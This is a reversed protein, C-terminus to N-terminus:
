RRSRTRGASRPPVYVNVDWTWRNDTSPGTTTDDQVLDTWFLTVAPMALAELDPEYDLATRRRRHPRRRRRISEIAEVTTSV